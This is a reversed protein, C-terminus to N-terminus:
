GQFLATTRRGGTGEKISKSRDRKAEKYILVPKQGDSVLKSHLSMPISRGLEENMGTCDCNEEQTSVLSLFARELEVCKKESYVMDDIKRIALDGYPETSIKSPLVTIFEECSGISYQVVTFEETQCLEDPNNIDHHAPIPIPSYDRDINEMLPYYKHFFKDGLEKWTTATGESNWWKEADGSLSKSFVHLRLEDKDLAYKVNSEISPEALNQEARTENLIHEALIVKTRGASVIFMDKGIPVVYRGAPVKVRSTPVVYWAHIKHRQSNSIQKKLFAILQVAITLENGVSGHCIELQHDLMMEILNVSLPYKKDVFMHLVLGSVTELVHIGSFSYLKWSQINWTHQNKWVDSGHNVEPQLGDFRSNDLRYFANISGLGTPLLEWDVVVYFHVPTDDDSTSDADSAYKICVKHEAEPDGESEWSQHPLTNQATSAINFPVEVDEITAKQSPVEVQVDPIDQSHSPAAVEERSVNHSPTAGEEAQPVSHSPAQVNVEDVGTKLKKSSARPKSYQWKKGGGMTWGTSYVAPGQNKVYTRMYQRLQSPTIPRERREKARQEVLEKRRTNVLEVMRAVFADDTFEVGFITSSLDPNAQVVVLIDGLAVDFYNIWLHLFRRSDREKTKMMEFDSVRGLREEELQRFTKDPTPSHTEVAVGKGKRVDIVHSSPTALTTGSTAPITDAAPISISTPVTTSGPSVTSPGTSAGVSPVDTPVATTPVDSTPHPPSLPVEAGPSVYVHADSAAAAKRSRTHLKLELAKVKKVLTGVVEKFLLKHAQLESELISVSPTTTSLSGGLTKMVWM